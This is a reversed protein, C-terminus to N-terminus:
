RALDGTPCAVPLETAVMESSPADPGPGIAAQYPNGIGGNVTKCLTGKARCAFCPTPCAYLSVHQTAQSSSSRGGGTLGHAATLQLGPDTQQLFHM